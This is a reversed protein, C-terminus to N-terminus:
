ERDERRRDPHGKKMDECLHCHEHLSLEIGYKEKLSKRILEFDTSLVLCQCGYMLVFEKAGREQALEVVADRIQNIYRGTAFDAASPCLVSLKRKRMLEGMQFGRHRTCSLAGVFLIQGEPKGDLLSEISFGGGHHGRGEKEREFREERM